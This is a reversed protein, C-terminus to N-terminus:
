DTCQGWVGARWGGGPTRWVEAQALRRGTPDLMDVVRVADQDGVGVDVGQEQTRIAEVDGWDSSDLVATQLAPWSSADAVVQYGSTCDGGATTGGTTTCGLLLPGLLLVLSSRSTRM